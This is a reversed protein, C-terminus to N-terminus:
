AVGLKIAAFKIDTTEGEFFLYGGTQVWGVKTTFTGYMFVKGAVISEATIDRTRNQPDVVSNITVTKPDTAHANRVLLLEDGTMIFQNKNTADADTWTVAVGAAPNSGPAATKTVDVRAAM